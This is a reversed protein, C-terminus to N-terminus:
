GFALALGLMVTAVGSLQEFHSSPFLPATEEWVVLLDTNDERKLGVYKGEFGQLGHGISAIRSDEIRLRCGPGPFFNRVKLKRFNGESVLSTDPKGADFSRRYIAMKITQDEKLSQVVAVMAVSGPLFFNLSFSRPACSGGLSPHDHQKFVQGIRRAYDNNGNSARLRDLHDLTVGHDNLVKLTPSWDSAPLHFISNPPLTSMVKGKETTKGNDKSKLCNISGTALGTTAGHPITIAFAEQRM